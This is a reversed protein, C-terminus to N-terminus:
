EFFNQLLFNLISYADVPDLIKLVVQYFPIKVGDVTIDHAFNIKNTQILLTLDELNESRLAEIIADHTLHYNPNPNPLNKFEFSEAKNMISKVFDVSSAPSNSFNFIDVEFPDVQMDNDEFPDVNLEDVKMENVKTEDVKMEVKGNLLFHVEKVSTLSRQLKQQENAIAKETPKCNCVPLNLSCTVESALLFLALLPFFRRSTSM